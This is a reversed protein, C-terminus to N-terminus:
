DGLQIQRTRIEDLKRQAGEIQHAVFARDQETAEPTAKLKSQLVTLSDVKNQFVEAAVPLQRKELKEVQQATAPTPLGLWHWAGALAGGVVGIALLAGSVKGLYTGVGGLNLRPFGAKATTTPKPPAPRRRTV